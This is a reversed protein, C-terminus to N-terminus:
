TDPRASVAHHCIACHLFGIRPSFGRSCVLAGPEGVRRAGPEEVEGEVGMRAAPKVAVAEEMRAEPPCM